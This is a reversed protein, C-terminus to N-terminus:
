EKQPVLLLFFVLWVKSKREYSFTYKRTYCKEIKANKKKPFRPLSPIELTMLSLKKKSSLKRRM